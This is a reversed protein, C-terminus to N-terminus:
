RGLARKAEEINMPAIGGEKCLQALEDPRPLSDAPRADRVELASTLVLRTPTFWVDGAIPRSWPLERRPSLRMIRSPPLGVDALWATVSLSDGTLLWLPQLAASTDSPVQDGFRRALVNCAGCDIDVIFAVHCGRDGPLLPDSIPDGALDTLDFPLAKGVELAVYEVERDLAGLAVAFQVVLLVALAAAVGGFVLERRRESQM